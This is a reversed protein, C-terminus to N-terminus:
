RHEQWSFKIEDIYGEGKELAFLESICAERARQLFEEAIDCDLFFYEGKEKHTLDNKLCDKLYFHEYVFEKAARKSFPDLGKIMDATVSYKESLYGNLRRYDGYLLVINGKKKPNWRYKNYMMDRFVVDQVLHLYYGLYLSDSKIKGIYKERFKTIDFFRKGDKTNRYHANPILAFDPILTGLLFENEKNTDAKNDNILGKAACLHMILSAM